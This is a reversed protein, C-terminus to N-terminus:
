MSKNIAIAHEVGIGGFHEVGRLTCDSLFQVLEGEGFMGCRTSYIFGWCCGSSSELADGADDVDVNCDVALRSFHKSTDARDCNIVYVSLEIGFALIKRMSQGVHAALRVNVDDDGGPWAYVRRGSILDRTSTSSKVSCYGCETHIFLSACM